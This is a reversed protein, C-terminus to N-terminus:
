RVIFTGTFVSRPQNHAVHYNSRRMVDFWVNIFSKDYNIEYKLERGFACSIGYIADRLASVGQVNEISQSSFLSSYGGPCNSQNNVFKLIDEEMNTIPLDLLVNGTLIPFIPNYNIVNPQMEPRETTVVENSMM